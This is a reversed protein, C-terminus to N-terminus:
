KIKELNLLKSNETVQEGNKCFIEKIIGDRPAILSYEMKMAELKLLVEGKKVRNKIKLNNIKIIGHMPAFISDEFKSNEVSDQTLSNKLIADFTNEDSFITFIKNGTSKDRFVYFKVEFNKNKTKAKLTSDQFSVSSFYFDQNNFAVEFNENSTKTICFSIVKQGIKINIPYTAPKWNYWYNQQSPTLNNFIILSALAKLQPEIDKDIFQEINNEVFKTYIDGERFHKNKLLKKLLNLNTTIGAVEIDFLCNRLHNIAEKRNKGHSIIKAIMPDYYPSIFDGKKNGTDIICNPHDSIKPFKFHHLCGSQPLFNKNIDEAYLRAELSWGNLYIENQSKPLTLGNAIHLQWEILNTSTIKETVPHEVQIRTNMEMFYIKNKNLGNTIDAIFEITGAGQYDLSKLANVALDGLFKRIEENLKPSPAEEIIKQQRRQLTCDRDFFHVVNGHHDSFIQVEIHRAKTIYKEILINKDNFNTSAESSAEELSSFFNEKNEVVRMGRGGGGSRAKILVPYGIENAKKKLFYKDQNNGHYGPIIPIGAKEMILKAKDKEGMNKIITSKPGIFIIKNHEVNKVFEANESLLGYGPHIANAKYKKCINIIASGNMYTESVISGSINVAEDALKIHLSDADENSYIAVTPIDLNKACKIIKCAIEGRNAILLKKIKKKIM